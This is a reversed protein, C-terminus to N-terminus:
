IDEGFSDITIAEGPKFPPLGLFPCGDCRFADGLSCSGCGGTKGEITFDIEAMDEDNFKIESGKENRKSNQQKLKEEIKIAELTALKAMNGLISDQLLKSNNSEEEEQEKLGCTCDKCAKRRKKGNPIECKKPIILNIGLKNSENILEQENIIEDEENLIEEDDDNDEGENDNDDDSFYALKTEALKRKMLNTEDNEEDTNSASTDTLDISNTNPSLSNANSSNSSTSNSTSSNSSNIMSPKSLKKFMPLKKLGTGQNLDKERKKLPISTLEVPKPKIWSQDEDNIIFGNMLVDLNQDKPLDGRLKGDNKLVDFLKKIMIIPLNRNEEEENPNIYIILDYNNLPLEIIGKAVRDIIQQSINIENNFEQHLKNKTEIVLSENTVVTPHLLLLINM